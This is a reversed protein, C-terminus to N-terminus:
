IDLIIQARFGDGKELKLLHYTAAKVQTKLNHRLPDAKEGYAIARLHEQGLGVIEFRSFILNDADFLYLLENLWTVLLEEQDPAEAVIEHRIVEAVKELDAILSFMGYAANIFVEEVSDGYAVIGVDATHDIIEFNQM